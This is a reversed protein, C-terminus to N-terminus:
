ENLPPATVVTPMEKKRLEPCDRVYHGLKDCRYCRVRSIDFPPRSSRDGGESGEKRGGYTMGGNGALRDRPGAPEIGGPINKPRAAMSAYGPVMQSMQNIQAAM